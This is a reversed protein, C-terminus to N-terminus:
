EFECFMVKVDDGYEVVFAGLVIEVIDLIRKVIEVVFMFVLMVVGNVDNRNIVIIGLVYM